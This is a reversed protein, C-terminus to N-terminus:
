IQLSHESAGSVAAHVALAHVTPEVDHVRVITAGRQVCLLAATVSATVRSASESGLMAALMKKRSLGIMLPAEAALTELNRLLELNHALTKGFGFGPDFVIQQEPIGAAVCINRRQLLFLTVDQLVNTYSPAQQMTQPQGQMHMLCVPLGTSVAADLAEPQQLARVDNIIGAGAGHAARIVRAKSTDVSVITDFREIVKEVLPAVRDIEQQEGVTQAGPRTSEGGIDIIDAGAALMAEVQSMAADTHLFQGGDSFSDPTVNLIGM